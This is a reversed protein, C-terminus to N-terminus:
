LTLTACFVHCWVRACTERSSRRCERVGDVSRSHQCVARSHCLCVSRSNNPRECVCVACVACVCCVCVYYIHISVGAIACCVCVCHVCVCVCMCMCVCVCVCVCMNHYTVAGDHTPRREEEEEEEEEEGVDGRLRCRVVCQCLTFLKTCRCPTIARRDRSSESCVIVTHTFWTLCVSASCVCVVVCVCARVRCVYMHTHSGPSCVVGVVVCLVADCCVFVCVFRVVCVCCM